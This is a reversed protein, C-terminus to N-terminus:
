APYSLTSQLTLLVLSLILSVVWSNIKMNGKITEKTCLNIGTQWSSVGGVCNLCLLKKPNEKKPFM